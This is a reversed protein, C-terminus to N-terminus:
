LCLGPWHTVYIQNQKVVIEPYMTIKAAEDIM